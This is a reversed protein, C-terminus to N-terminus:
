HTIMLLMSDILFGIGFIIATIRWETLKRTNEKYSFYVDIIKDCASRDNDDINPIDYYSPGIIVNILYRFKHRLDEILRDNSLFMSKYEEYIASVENGDKMMTIMAKTITDFTSLSVDPMLYYAIFANIENIMFQGYNITSDFAEDSLSECDTIAEYEKRTYLFIYKDTFEFELYRNYKRELDRTNETFEKNFEIQISNAATPYIKGSKDILQNIISYAQDIINKSIPQAGHENWDEKLERIDKFTSDIYNNSM